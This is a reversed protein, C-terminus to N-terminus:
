EVFTWPSRNLEKPAENACVERRAPWAKPMPSPAPPNFVHRITINTTPNNTENQSIRFTNEHHYEPLATQPELAPHVNM